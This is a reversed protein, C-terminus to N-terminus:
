KAAPTAGLKNVIADLDLFDINLTSVDVDAIKLNKAAELAVLIDGGSGQLAENRMREGAAEATLVKLTGESNKQAAILDADAEKEKVYRDFEAKITAIELDTEAQMRILEAEKEKIVLNVLKATEAEIVQTKGSMQEAKGLSINLEVEQDALKKQRIKKEYEPDFQVSRILVDIVELGKPNLANNLDKHVLAAATRREAPNYFGETEMQGFAGMCAKQAENRVIIKYKSGAGIQQYLQYAQEKIIQYKVTVDLSIAYGDASQVKIDDISRDSGQGPDRTMELTQATSDFLLWKDLPGRHLHWGPTYDKQILGQKGFINYQQIRVGVKGIPIDITLSHLVVSFGIIIVTILISLIKIIKM